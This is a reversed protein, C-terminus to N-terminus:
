VPIQHGWWIQRPICWDRINEMWEFYLKEWRSPVFTIDKSKVADNVPKTLQKMDIFWQKSLYPEIM